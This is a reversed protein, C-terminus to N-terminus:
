SSIMQGTHPNYVIWRRESFRPTKDPPLIKTMWASNIFMGRTVRGTLPMYYEQKQVVYMATLDHRREEPETCYTRTCRPCQFYQDSITPPYSPRQSDPMTSLHVVNWVPYHVPNDQYLEPTRGCTFCKIDQLFVPDGRHFFTPWYKRPRDKPYPNDKLWVIKSATHNVWADWTIKAIILNCHLFHENSVPPPEDWIKGPIDPNLWTTDSCKTNFYDWPHPLDHMDEICAETLLLPQNSVPPNTIIYYGPTNGRTNGHEYRVRAYPGATYTNLLNRFWPTDQCHSLSLPPMDSM